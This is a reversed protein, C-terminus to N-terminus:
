RASTLLNQLYQLFAAKDPASKAETPATATDEFPVDYSSKPKAATSPKGERVRKLGREVIEPMPRHREIRTPQLDIDAVRDSDKPLEGHPARDIRAQLPKFAAKAEISTTQYEPAKFGRKAAMEDVRKLMPSPKPSVRTKVAGLLAPLVAAYPSRAEVNALEDEIEPLMRKYKDTFQGPSDSDSAAQYAAMPATVFPGVLATAGDQIAEKGYDLVRRGTAKALEAGGELLEDFKDYKGM